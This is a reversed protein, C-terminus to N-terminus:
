KVVKFSLNKKRIIKVLEPLIVKLREEVKLNDHLVIVDGGGIQKKAKKLIREISVSSDYDYSLWSWMIIRYKKRITKTYSIPLRGYPPRFLNSKILVNAKELSELYEEKSTNVCKLHDMTHNGISHGESAMRKLLSPHKQVNEGVCFFTALINEKLLYDLIWITLAETPGDDFTLFVAKKDSFGWERKSFLYRFVFPTKFFRIM